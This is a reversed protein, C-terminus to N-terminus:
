RRRNLLLAAALLGLGVAAALASLFPALTGEGGAHPRVFVTGQAVVTPGSEAAGTTAAPRSTATSTPIPTTSPVPTSTPFPTSTPAATQQIQYERFRQVTDSCWFDTANYMSCLTDIDPAPLSTDLCYVDVVWGDGQCMQMRQVSGAVGPVTGFGLDSCVIWGNPPLSIQKPLAPQGVGPLPASIGSMAPRLFFFGAMLLLAALCGPVIFRLVPRIQLRKM